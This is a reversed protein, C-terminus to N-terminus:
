GPGHLTAYAALPSFCALPVLGIWIQPSSTWIPIEHWRNILLRARFALM